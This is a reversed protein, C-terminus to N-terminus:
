KEDLLKIILALAEARTAAASPDFTNGGKGQILGAQVAAAIEAQAWGPILGADAFSLAASKGTELKAARTIIVALEARSIQQDPRFTQDSYGGILGASAAKAVHERAWAPIRSADQFAAEKGAELKLARSLLSVFEARTIVGDPRFTGDAYGTAIGLTVAKGIEAQAWHGKIDAFDTEPEQTENGKDPTQVTTGTTEVGPVAANADAAKVSATDFVFQVTHESNYNQAPISLKVTAKLKASLDTLSVSVVRTDAAENKSVDAVEHGDITLVKIASSQKVTFQVTKSSGSEKVLAKPVVYSQMMSTEATGEKLVKFDIYYYKDSTGVVVGSNGGPYYPTTKSTINALQVTYSTEKVQENDIYEIVLSYPSSLDKVEFQVPVSAGSTLALLAATGRFGQSSVAAPSMSGVPLIEENTTQNILKKVTVGPKPTITLKSTQAGVALEATGQIHGAFAPSSSKLTANYNGTSFNKSAQFADLAAQLKVAAENIQNQNVPNAASEKAVGIAAQLKQKSGAKYQNVSTGENASDHASQASAILTNLPNLNKNDSREFLAVAEKLKATAAASTEPTASLSVAETNAEDVAAKLVAKAAETYQGPETGTVAARLKANAANILSFLATNDVNNFNLRINHERDYNQSPVVTRVRADVLKGLDNVEFSVVRTNKKKIKM